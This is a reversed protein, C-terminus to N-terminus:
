EFMDWAQELDKKSYVRFATLTSTREIGEVGAIDETVVTAVREYEPVRVIAVLDHEGSVSYVEAVGDIGAIRRAIAPIDGPHARILVVAAVM